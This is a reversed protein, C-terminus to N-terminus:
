PWPSPSSLLSTLTLTFTLALTLTLILTVEGHPFVAGLREGLGSGLGAGLWTVEGHPFVAEDCHIPNELSPGPQRLTLFHESLRM